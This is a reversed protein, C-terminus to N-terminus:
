ARARHMCVGAILSRATRPPRPPHAHLRHQKSMRATRTAVARPEQAAAVSAWCARTTSRRRHGLPAHVQIYSESVSILQPHVGNVHLDQVEYWQDNARFHVFGRYSGAEPTGDHQLSAMLHYKASTPPTMYNGMELGRVQTNRVATPALWVYAHARRLGPFRAGVVQCSSPRAVTSWTYTYAHHRRLFFARGWGASSAPACRSAGGPSGGWGM